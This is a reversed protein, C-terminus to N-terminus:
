PCSMPHLKGNSTAPNPLASALLHGLFVMTSMYLGQFLWYWFFKAATDDKDFGVIFFYPIVFIVSSLVLYPIQLMLFLFIIVM